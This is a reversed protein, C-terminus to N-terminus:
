NSTTMALATAGDVNISDLMVTMTGLSRVSWLKIPVIYRGSPADPAPVSIVDAFMSPSTQWAMADRQPYGAIAEYHLECLHGTGNFQGNSLKV